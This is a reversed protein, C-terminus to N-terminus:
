IMYMQSLYKGVILLGTVEKGDTQAKLICKNWIEPVYPVDCEELIWLFTQPDWCDVLM